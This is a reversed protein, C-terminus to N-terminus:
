QAQKWRVRWRQWLAPQVTFGVKEAQKWLDSVAQLNEKKEAEDKYTQFLMLGHNYYAEGMFPEYVVANQFASKAYEIEGLRWYAVGLNMWGEEDRPWDELLEVYVAVAEKWYEAEMLFGAFEQRVRISNEEIAIADKWADLVEQKEGLKLCAFALRVKVAYDDPYYEFTKKWLEKSHEYKGSEYEDEAWGAYIIGLDRPTYITTGAPFKELRKSTKLAPEWQEGLMQAYFLNWLLDPDNPKLKEAHYYATAAFDYVRIEHYANGTVAWAEWDKPDLEHAKAASELAKDYKSERLAEKARYLHADASNPALTTYLDGLGYTEQAQLQNGSQSMQWQLLFLLVAPVVFLSWKALHGRQSVLREKLGTPEQQIGLDKQVKSQRVKWIFGDLYYHMLTSTGLLVMPLTLLITMWGESERHWEVLSSAQQGITFFHIAGYIGILGLYALLLGGPFSGFHFRGLRSAWSHYTKQQVIWVIALYQVAHFIEFMAVGLLPDVGQSGCLWWIWGTGAALAFKMPSVPSGKVMQVIQFLVYIAAVSITAGITIKQLFLIWTPDFTLPVGSTVIRRILDFTRAPSLITGALFFTACLLFDLQRGWGSHIGRKADYIRMLGFTQMMGHWIAWLLIIVKLGVFGALEFTYCAAIFLLPAVILRTRYLRFFESDGYARLFGPLHHGVSCFSIALLWIWESSVWGRAVMVSGWILLPAFIFLLLDVAPSAIWMSKAKVKAENTIPQSITTAM